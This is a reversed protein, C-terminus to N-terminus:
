DHVKGLRKYNFDGAFHHATSMIFQLLFYASKKWTKRKQDRDVLGIFFNNCWNSASQRWWLKQIFSHFLECNAKENPVANWHYIRQYPYSFTTLWVTKLGRNGFKIACLQSRSPQNRLRQVFDWSVMFRELLHAKKTFDMFNKWRFFQNRRSIKRLRSESTARNAHLFHKVLRPRSKFFNKLQMEESRGIALFDNWSRKTM